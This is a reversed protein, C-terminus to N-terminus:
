AARRMRAAVDRWIRWRERPSLAGAFPTSQRLECAREGREVLFTGIADPPLALVAEWERAYHPPVDCAALWGRVRSRARELVGPDVAIRAAVAEHYALSREEALRHADM